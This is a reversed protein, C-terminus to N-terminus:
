PRGRPTDRGANSGAAIRQGPKLGAAQLATPAIVREGASLGAVVEVTERGRLGLQVPRWVARANQDVYVGATGDRRVVFRAPLLVVDAKRGTEIYVEARQGVAWNQRLEAVRVDVLFERTERDSERGLRAVEGAYSKDPESRFVVRAPREPQLRAMETEDVWASIWMEATSVLLLVSSGPVVVDGRDHDRRAILGEFPATVVADTLKVRQFGLTKEAVVVQIRAENLAAEARSLDAEAVRLTETAKDMETSSATGQKSLDQTRQFDTRAWDLVAQARGRDTMQRGVAAQAAVLGSESVEVQGVLDADYLRFLVDGTEVRDGQDVLVETILGAIRPSITASVRAELTGTGMVEAVVEGRQVVHAVVSVPAFRLWYVLAAAIALLVLGKLPHRLLRGWRPRVASPPVPSASSTPVTAM